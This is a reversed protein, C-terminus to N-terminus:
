NGLQATDRRSQPRGAVAEEQSITVALDISAAIDRQNTATIIQAQEVARASFFTLLAAAILALESDTAEIDEPLVETIQQSFPEGVREYHKDLIETLEPQLTSANFAGAGQAFERVTQRVLQRNFDRIEEILLREFRLKEALDRRADAATKVAIGPAQKLQGSMAKLICVAMKTQETDLAM